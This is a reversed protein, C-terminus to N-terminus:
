RLECQGSSMQKEKEGRVRSALSSQKWLYRISSAIHECACNSGRKTSGSSCCEDSGTLVGMLERGCALTWLAVASFWSCLCLWPCLTISGQHPGGRVAANGGWATGSQTLLQTSKSVGGGLFDQLSCLDLCWQSGEASDGAMDAPEGGEGCASDM